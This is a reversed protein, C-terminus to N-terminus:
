RSSCCALSGSTCPWSNRRSRMKHVGLLKADLNRHRHLLLILVVLPDLRSRVKVVIFLLDVVLRVIEFNVVFLGVIVVVTIVCFYGHSSTLPM